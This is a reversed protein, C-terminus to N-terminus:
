QNRPSMPATLLWVGCKIDITFNCRNSQAEIARYLSCYKATSFDKPRLL